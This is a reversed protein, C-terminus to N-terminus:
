PATRWRRWAACRPGAWLWTGPSPPRSRAAASQAVGQAVVGNDACLVLLARPTLCVEPSGTLAALREVATELLGLSGLPKACADWRRKAARRAGEDAGTVAALRRRLEQERDTMGTGEKGATRTPVPGGGPRVARGAGAKRCFVPPPVGRVPQPLCLWLGLGQRDRAKGRRLRGRRGHTGTTSSTSRRRSGKAFSCATGRPPSHPTASACWDRRPLGRGPLVGPWPAPGAGRPRWARGWTSSAGASRWRPCAPEVAAQVARRMSDNAALAEAHLEPYGGPLYLGGTGEPLGQDRLPSFEVLEAGADRLADLTEEYVFCFAEDRAVAIRARAPVAPPPPPAEQRPRAFLAILGELDATQELQDVLADIRQALDM